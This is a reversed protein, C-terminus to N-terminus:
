SKKNPVHNIYKQCEEMADAFKLQKPPTKQTIASPGYLPGTVGMDRATMLYRVADIVIGASNPSDQVSLRCDLTIPMGLFGEGEVRLIAVKNDKLYPIYDSPGAYVSGDKMKHGYLENQSKIVNEKSIKKSQLRGSDTMNLFDTNGGQNIQSHFKVNIGRALMAEQIVQSLISAGFQSRMDDGIAVIGADAIKKQWEPDSVIFVPICNVFPVKAAILAEVYFRTAHESGVPLYILAVDIQSEKILNVMGCFSPPSQDSAVYFREEDNEDTAMMHSAVGDLIIGRQVVQFKPVESFFGKYQNYLIEYELDRGVVDSGPAKSCNPLSYIARNVSKGVKRSDVDIALGIQIDSVEYGGITSHALGPLRDYELEDKTISYAIVGEIFSKACNGLGIIGVNIKRAM